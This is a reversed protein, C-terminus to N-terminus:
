SALPIQQGFTDFSLIVKFLDGDIEVKLEGGCVKTFSEAISLGLGSGEAARAKDGRTFRQLIEEATFNMEYGAINKITAIAKQDVINLKIYIRTNPMSYKLANDLINQFVRYLRKGDSQISVPHDPLQMKIQLYSATIKDEMEGITQEMLKKLDIVEYEPTIDGSISKALDFLDTVINKLRESKAQLIGVYEMSTESLGEERSLLDVYSIISTLPTKLDHSVNTILEVKTRESKRQENLSENLNNYIKTYIGTNGKAFWYLIALNLATPILMFISGSETLIMLCIMSLTMLLTVSLAILQRYYLIKTLPEKEILKRQFLYKYLDKVSRFITVIMKYLFSHKVLNHNKVKRALALILLILISFYLFIVFSFELIYLSFRNNFNAFSANGFWRGLTNNNLRESLFAFFYYIMFCFILIIFDSFLKDLKGVHLEKDGKWRGTVFILLIIFCLGIFGFVICPIFYSLLEARNAEWEKQKQQMYQYPFAVFGTLKQNVEKTYNISKTNEGSKWVGFDLIYYPSHSNAYYSADSITTNAFIIEGDNRYFSYPLKTIPRDDVKVGGIEVIYEAESLTNINLYSIKDLVEEVEDNFVNSNKYEKTTLGEMNFNGSSRIYGHEIEKLICSLYMIVACTIM